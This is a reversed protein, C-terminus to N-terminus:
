QSSPSLTSLSTTHNVPTESNKPLSTTIQVNRVIERKPPGHKIYIYRYITQWHDSVLVFHTESMGEKM